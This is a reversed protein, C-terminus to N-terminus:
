VLTETIEFYNYIYFQLMVPSYLGIHESNAIRLKFRIISLAYSQNNYYFGM